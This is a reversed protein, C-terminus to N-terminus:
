WGKSPRAVAAPLLHQLPAARQGDAGSRRENKHTQAHRSNQLAGALLPLV